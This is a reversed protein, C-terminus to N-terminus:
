RRARTSESAGTPRAGFRVTGPEKGPKGVHIEGPEAFKVIPPGASYIGPNLGGNAYEAVGGDAYAVIGGDAEKQGLAKLTEQVM